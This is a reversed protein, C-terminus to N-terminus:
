TTAPVSRPHTNRDCAWKVLAATALATCTGCAAGMIGFRPVLLAHAAFAVCLAVLHAIMNMRDRSRAYLTYHWVLAVNNVIAALLLVLYVPIHEGYQAKGLMWVAGYIGVVFLPVLGATYRLTTALIRRRCAQLADEDGQQAAMVLRPLVTAVAGALVLERLVRSISAYVTYVGVAGRGVYRDLFYRDLSDTLIFAATSVLFVGSTRLARRAFAPDARAGSSQAGLSLLGADVVWRWGLAAAMLSAVAWSCFVADLSRLSPLFFALPAFVFVWAGQGLTVILYASRPREAAILLRHAELSMHSGVAILLFWPAHKWSLFRLQCLTAIAVPLLLYAYAYVRLQTRVISERAVGRAALLTRTAVHHIELGVIQVALVSASNFVGYVGMDEVTLTRGLFLILSFRGVMGVLRLLAALSGSWRSDSEVRM